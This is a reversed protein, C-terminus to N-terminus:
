ALAAEVCAVCADVNCPTCRAPLVKLAARRGKPPEDCDIVAFKAGHALALSRAAERLGADRFRASLVVSRRSALVHEGRDLMSAYREATELAGSSVLRPGSEPAIARTLTLVSAGHRRALRQIVAARQGVGDGAIVIVTPTAKRMRPVACMALADSARGLASEQAEAGTLVDNSSALLTFTAARSLARAREYFDVVDYMGFDDEEEAVRAIFREALDSRGLRGLDMTIAAVDAATDAFRSRSDFAYSSLVEFDGDETVFVRDLRLDGHTRRVMGGAARRVFAIRHARVFTLLEDHVARLGDATVLSELLGGAAALDSEIRNTLTAPSVQAGDAIDADAHRSALWEALRDITDFGLWGERLLNDARKAPDLRAMVLAHEIPPGDLAFTARGGPALRIPMVGLYTRPADHRGQELEDHLAALRSELSRMDSFPLRLPKWIKYVRDGFLLWHTPSEVVRVEWADTSAAARAHLEALLDDVVKRTDVSISPGSVSVKM